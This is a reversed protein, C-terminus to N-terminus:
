TAHKYYDEHADSHSADSKGKFIPPVFVFSIGSYYIRSSPRLPAEVRLSSDSRTILIKVHSVSKLRSGSSLVVDIRQYGDVILSM